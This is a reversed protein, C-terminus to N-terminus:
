YLLHKSCKSLRPPSRIQIPWHQKYLFGNPKIVHRKFELVQPVAFAQTLLDIFCPMLGIPCFMNEEM